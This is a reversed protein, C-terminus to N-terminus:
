VGLFAALRPDNWVALSTGGASSINGQWRGTIPDIRDINWGWPRIYLAQNGKIVDYVDEYRSIPDDQTLPNTDFMRYSEYTKAAPVVPVAAKIAEANAFAEAASGVVLDSTGALAEAYGPSVVSKVANVLDAFLTGPAPPEYPQLITDAPSITIEERPAERVGFWQDLQAEFVSKGPVGSLPMEPVTVDVPGTGLDKTGSAWWELLTDGTGTAPAIENAPTTVVQVVKEVGPLEPIKNKLWFYAVVLVGALLAYPAVGRTIGALASETKTM